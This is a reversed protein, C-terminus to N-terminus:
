FSITSSHLYKPTKIELLHLSELSISLTASM